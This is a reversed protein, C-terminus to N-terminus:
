SRPLRCTRPHVAIGPPRWLRCQRRRSRRRRSPPYRSGTSCLRPSRSSCARMTGSLTAVPSSWSRLSSPSSVVAVGGWLRRAGEPRRMASASHVLVGAVILGAVGYALTVLSLTPTSPVLGLRRHPEDVLNVYDDLLALGATFVFAGAALRVVRPETTPIRIPAGGRFPSGDPHFVTSWGSARRATGAYAAFGLAGAVAVRRAGRSARIHPTEIGGRPIAGCAPGREATATARMAARPRYGSRSRGHVRSSSAPDDIRASFQPGRQRLSRPQIRRLVRQLAGAARLERRRPDDIPQVVSRPAKAGQVRRADADHRRDWLERHPASGSRDGFTCRLVLV